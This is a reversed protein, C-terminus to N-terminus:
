VRGGLTGSLYFLYQAFALLILGSLLKVTKMWNGSRPLIKVAGTFLAIVILLTGLGLAFGIMLSLGFGVSKSKAIYALIVTLVPTTCPSSLVGSTAGLGIAAKMGIKEPHNLSPPTKNKKSKFLNSFKSVLFGIDSPIVELMMLASITFVGGLFLYSFPRNTLSGFISGTLGAVVGLTAYVLIMGFLYASTKSIIEKWPKKGFGSETKSLGGVVGVTIPIMPYICPTLSSLVGGLYAVCVGLIIQTFTLGSDQVLLLQNLLQSLYEM